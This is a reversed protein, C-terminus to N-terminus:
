CPYSPVRIAVVYSQLSRLVGIKAEIRCYIVVTGCIGQARGAALGDAQALSYPYSYVTSAVDVNRLVNQVAPQGSDAAPTEYYFTLAVVQSDEPVQDQDAHAVIGGNTLRNRRAWSFSMPTGAVTQAEEFWPRGNVVIRGPAYPLKARGIMALYYSPLTDLPYPTSYSIPRLKYTLAVGAVRPMPDDSASAEFFWMRAGALHVAPVTDLCGRKVTIQKEAVAVVEVIENDILALHGPLVVILPVGDYQSSTRVNVVTELEPLRFDSIVWPTFDVDGGTEAGDAILECTDAMRDAPRAAIGLAHCDSASNSARRVNVAYPAEIVRGDFMMTQAPLPTASPHADVTMTYEQFSDFGERESNLSCTLTLVENPDGLDHLIQARRYYFEGGLIGREIRMVDDTRPDAVRFTYTVGAEPGISADDHGVLQDAQLVRDRHFWTVHMADTDDDVSATVDFRQDNVMVHAPPYPRFARWDFSVNQPAVKQPLMGGGGITFPSVKVAAVEGASREVKDTGVTSADFIWVVSEAPQVAPVTDACGRRVTLTNDAVADIRMIEDGVMAAMGPQIADGRSLRARTYTISTDFLGLPVDLAVSSAFAGNGQKKYDENAM